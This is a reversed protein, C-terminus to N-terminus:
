RRGCAGLGGVGGDFGNAVGPALAVVAAWFGSSVFDARTVDSGDTAAGRSTDPTPRHGVFRTTSPLAPPPSATMAPVVRGRAPRSFGLARRTSICAVMTAWRRRRHFGM